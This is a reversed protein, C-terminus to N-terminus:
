DLAHIFDIWQLARLAAAPELDDAEDLPALRIHDLSDEAVAPSPFARKAGVGSRAGRGTSRLSRRRFRSIQLYDGVGLEKLGLVPFGLCLPLGLRVCRALQLQHEIGIKELGPRLRGKKGGAAGTGSTTRASQGTFPGRVPM